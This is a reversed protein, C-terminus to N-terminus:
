AAASAAAAAAAAANPAAIRFHRRAAANELEVRAERHDFHLGVVRALRACGVERAVQVVGGLKERGEAVSTLRACPSRSGLTSHAFRMQLRQRPLLGATYWGSRRARARM